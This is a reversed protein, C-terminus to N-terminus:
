MRKFHRYVGTLRNKWAGSDFRELKACDEEAMHLMLGKAVVIGIHTDLRGRRFTLLDFPRSEQVAIWTGNVTVDGILANLEAREETTVYRENYSPLDIGLERAYVLRALGWCDAGDEARGCDKYPLGIYPNSWSM